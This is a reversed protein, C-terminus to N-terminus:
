ILGGSVAATADDDCLLGVDDATSEVVWLVLLMSLRPFTPFEGAFCASLFCCSLSNCSVEEAVEGEVDSYEHFALLLRLFVGSFGSTSVSEELVM